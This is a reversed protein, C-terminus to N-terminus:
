RVKMAFNYDIEKGGICMSNKLCKLLIKVDTGISQLKNTLGNSNQSGFPLPFLINAALGWTKSEGSVTQPFLKAPIQIDFYRRFNPVLHMSSFFLTM